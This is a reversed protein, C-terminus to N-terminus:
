VYCVTFYFTPINTSNMRMQLIPLPETEYFRMAWALFCAVDGDMVLLRRKTVTPLTPICAFFVVSYPFMRASPEKGLSRYVM